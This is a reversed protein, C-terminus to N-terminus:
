RLGAKALYPIVVDRFAAIEEDPAGFTKSPLLYMERVGLRTVEAIRKACDEATGFLGLAECMEAVEDDGVFSTAAIAENWDRAHMMDPYLDKAAQPIDYHPLNLGAPALWQNPEMVGWHVAIPRAQRRAEATTPGIGTRVGWIVRLDEVKRGGRKAGEELRSLAAEIIGKNFGVMLLVGDAIEGALEIAKPGTAAMILPIPRKSAFALRGPKGNWDAERGQLLARMQVICQRMEALTAAKRGITTASTYGTGFAFMVRGPAMDEVTAIAGALVSPHRTFPNSVAPFLTLTRTHAAAQALVIYTDRSLLQSDLIGAGDFGAAEIRQILAMLEPMPDTGPVRLYLRVSKSM